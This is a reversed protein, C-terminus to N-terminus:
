VSGRVDLQLNVLALRVGTQFFSSQPGSHRWIIGWASPCCSAMETMKPPPSQVRPHGVHPATAICCILSLRLWRQAKQPLRVAERTSLPKTDKLVHCGENRGRMDRNPRKLNSKTASYDDHGARRGGKGSL